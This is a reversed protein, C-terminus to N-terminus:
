SLLCNHEVASFYAVVQGIDGTHIHVYVIHMQVTYIIIYLLIIIYLMIIHIYYMYYYPCYIHINDIVYLLFENLELGLVEPDTM